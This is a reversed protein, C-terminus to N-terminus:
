LEKNLSDKLYRFLRCIFFIIRDLNKKCSCVNFIYIYIHYLKYM